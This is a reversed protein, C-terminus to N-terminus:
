GGGRYIGWGASEIRGLQKLRAVSSRVKVPDLGTTEIIDSVKVGNKKKKIISEVEAMIEAPATPSKPVRAAKKALAPQKKLAAAKKQAPKRKKTVPASEKKGSPLVPSDDLDIGFLDSLGSDTDMVNGTKQKAKTLLEKKSQRVTESILDNMDVKRLTFFLGPNEDLRAGIGYLAAAVHKCMSAWDPCSCDFSIDKPSPFLGDGMHTFLTTLEKPFKGALLHQLSDMKGKAGKILANWKNKPIPKISITIEYPKSHSGQVLATVKGPRIKLDLVARHRVYSRGRGIRNSYDAYRELNKNWEKGWWTTAINRGEIIVPEIGPNKKKLQKLKKEAKARKEAVSVYPGFGYYRM